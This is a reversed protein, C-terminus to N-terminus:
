VVFRCLPCSCYHRLLRRGFAASLHRVQVGTVSQQGSGSDGYSVEHSHLRYGSRIHRLKITSGCTVASYEARQRLRADLRLDFKTECCSRTHSWLTGFLCYLVCLVSAACAGNVCEGGSDCSNTEHAGVASALLAACLLLSAFM